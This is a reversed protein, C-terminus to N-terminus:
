ICCVLPCANGGAGSCCMCLLYGLIIRTCLGYYSGSSRGFRIGRDEYWSNGSELQRLLAEYSANGPEMDVATQAYDKASVNNGLGSHAAAALYYWFATRNSFSQLVTWAESYHGANIYNIAAKLRASEEDSYGDYSEQQARQSQGAGQGGYRFSFGFPGFGFFDGFDEDSYGYGGQQGDGDRDSGSGFGYGAGSYGSGTGGSGYGFPGYGGGYGRSSGPGYAGSGSSGYGGRVGLERDKMVQEYAQQVRKFMEEAQAKNPNNENNDPHYKRSLRRYAKKVEEDTASPDVELVKYPDYM